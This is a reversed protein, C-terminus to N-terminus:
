DRLPNSKIFDGGCGWPLNENCIGMGGGPNVCLIPNYFSSLWRKCMCHLTCLKECLSSFVMFYIDMYKLEDISDATPLNGVVLAVNQLLVFFIEGENGVMARFPPLVISLHMISLICHRNNCVKLDASFFIQTIGFAHTTM